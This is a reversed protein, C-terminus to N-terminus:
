SISHTKLEFVGDFKAVTKDSVDYAYVVLRVKPIGDVKEVNAIQVAIWGSQSQHPLIDLPVELSEDAELDAYIRVDNTLSVRAIRHGGEYQYNPRSVDKKNPKGVAVHYVTKGVLAPNVFTLLLLVLYIDGSSGILDIQRVRLQLRKHYRCIELVALALALGFGLIGLINPTTMLVVLCM